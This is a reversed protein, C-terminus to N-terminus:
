EGDKIIFTNEPICIYYKEYYDPVQTTFWYCWKHKFGVPKYIEIYAKNSKIFKMKISTTSSIDNTYTKPEVINNKKTIIHYSNSDIYTYITKDADPYSILEITEKKAFKLNEISTNYGIFVDGMICLLSVILVVIGFIKFKDLFTKEKIIKYLFWIFGIILSYKWIIYWIM